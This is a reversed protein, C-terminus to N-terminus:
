GIRTVKMMMTPRMEITRSGPTVHVYVSEQGERATGPRGKTTYSVPCVLGLKSTHNTIYVYDNPSVETKNQIPAIQIKVLNLQDFQAQTIRIYDATRSNILQLQGPTRPDPMVFFCATATRGQTRNRLRQDNTFFEQPVYLAAEGNTVTELQRRIVNRTQGTMENDIVNLSMPTNVGQTNRPATNRPATPAVTVTPTTPLPTRPNALYADLLRKEIPTLASVTSKVWVSKRNEDTTRPDSVAGTNKYSNLETMKVATYQGERSKAVVLRVPLDAYDACMLYERVVILDGVNWSHDDQGGPAFKALRPALTRLIRAEANGPTFEAVVDKPLIAKLEPDIIFNRATISNKDSASFRNLYDTAIRIKEADPLTKIMAFVREASVIGHVDDETLNGQADRKASVISQWVNDKETTGSTNSTLWKYKQLLARYLKYGLNIGRLGTPIGSNPFHSRQTGSDVNMYIEDSLDNTTTAWKGIDNNASMRNIRYLQKILERVNAPM